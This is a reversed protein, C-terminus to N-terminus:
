QANYSFHHILKVQSDPYLYPLHSYYITCVVLM